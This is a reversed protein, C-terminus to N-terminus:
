APPPNSARPELGLARHIAALKHLTEMYEREPVSDYVIGAGARTELTDGDISWVSRIVIATEGAYDGYAGAAGAYPGRPADELAAIVEMARPKPAGSVTGAPNTAALADAYTTGPAAVAEVRSVLHQVRSYKEVEMLATVRVTGPAAVVGLDNRALDVLMLHEAREKEDRLLEEELAADEEPSRGRPRTGAIPHTELKGSDMKVLLEPSAGLIWREGLRMYFMYPSPNEGVLRQYLALPEGRYRYREYRSLVVQLFEGEGLMRKAERVWDEFLRRPTEEVPGRAEFGGPPRREGLEADGPCVIARGAQHDYVVLAEPEFVLLPPWSPHLRLRPALWREVGAVAEYSVVGFLLGRCPLRACGRGGTAGRLAEYVGQPDHALYLRRAGVAVLTYRSREPLGAGSELLAVYGEEEDGWAALGRPGPLRSFPVRRCGMWEALPDRPWM